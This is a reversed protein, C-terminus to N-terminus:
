KADLYIAHGGIPVVIPIGWDLLKQGLYEVQGVRARIHDDQVSEEIGRAMAEGLLSPPPPFNAQCRDYISQEKM